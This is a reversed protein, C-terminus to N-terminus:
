VPQDAGVVKTTYLPSGDPLLANGAADHTLVHTAVLEDAMRYTVKSALLAMAEAFALTVDEFRAASEWCDSANEDVEGNEAVWKVLWETLLDVHPLHDDAPHVTWEEIRVICAALDEDADDSWDDRWRDYCDALTSGLSEAGPLGYLRKLDPM